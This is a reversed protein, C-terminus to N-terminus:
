LRRLDRAPLASGDHADEVAVTLQRAEQAQRAFDRLTQFPQNSPHAFWLPDVNDQFWDLMRVAAAPRVRHLLDQAMSWNRRPLAHHLATMGKADALLPNAGHRILLDVCARARALRDPDQRSIPVGPELFAANIDALGVSAAWMLPTYRQRETGSPLNIARVAEPHGLVHAVTEPHNGMCAWHLVNLGRADTALPDPTRSWLSEVWGSGGKRAATHLLDLLCADRQPVSPPLDDIWRVLTAEEPVEPMVDSTNMLLSQLVSTM